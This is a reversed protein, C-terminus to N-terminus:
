TKTIGETVLFPRQSQLCSETADSAKHLEQSIHGYVDM